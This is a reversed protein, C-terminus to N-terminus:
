LPWAISHIHTLFEGLAYREQRVEIIANEVEMKLYFGWQRRISSIGNDSCVSYDSGFKLLKM